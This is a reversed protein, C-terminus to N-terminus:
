SSNSNYYEKISDNYGSIIHYEGRTGPQDHIELGDAGVLTYIDGFEEVAIFTNVSSVNATQETLAYYAVDIPTLKGNNGVTAKKVKITFKKEAQGVVSRFVPRPVGPVASDPSIVPRLTSTERQLQQAVPRGEVSLRYIEGECVSM